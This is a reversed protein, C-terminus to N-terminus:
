PEVTVYYFGTDVIGGGLHEYEAETVYWPPSAGPDDATVEGMYVPASGGTPDAVRYVKYTKQDRAQWTVTVDPVGPGRVIDVLRLLITDNRPDTGSVAEGGDDLGDDDSDPDDPDTPTPFAFATGALEALDTLEDNDNDGDLENALGDDDSDLSPQLSITGLFGAYNLYDGGSSFGIGGPQAASSINRYRGGQCWDGGGDLVSSENSYSQGQAALAGM